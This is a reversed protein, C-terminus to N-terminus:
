PILTLTAALDRLGQATAANGRREEEIDACELMANRMFSRARVDNLNRQLDPITLVMGPQIKDPDQVIDSSALMILPYYFGSGYQTNSIRSLTDGSRVTYSQAGEMVIGNRYRNWVRSFADDIEQPTSKCSLVLTVGIVLVTFFAIKKM